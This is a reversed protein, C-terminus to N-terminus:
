EGAPQRRAAVVTGDIIANTAAEGGGGGGGVAAAAGAAAAGVGVPWRSGPPPGPQAGLSILRFRADVGAKFAHSAADFAAHGATDDAADDATQRLRRGAGGGVAGTRTPPLM